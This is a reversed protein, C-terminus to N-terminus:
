QEKMGKYLSLQGEIQFARREATKKLSRTDPEGGSPFRGEIVMYESIDVQIKQLSFSGM